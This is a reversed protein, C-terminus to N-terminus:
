HIWSSFSQSSCPFLFYLGVAAFFCSLDLRKEHDHKELHHIVYLANAHNNLKMKIFLTMLMKM